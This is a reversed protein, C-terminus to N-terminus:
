IARRREDRISSICQKTKLICPDQVKAERANRKRVVDASERM